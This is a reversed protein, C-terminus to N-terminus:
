YRYERQKLMRMFVFFILILILWYWYLSPPNEPLLQVLRENGSHDVAKVEVYSSRSQDELRYPSEVKQWTSFYKLFPVQYERVYYGFLGSDKDTTAFILVKDGNFVEPQSVVRPTFIEPAILDQTQSKPEILGVAEKIDIETGIIKIVTNTGLGDHKLASFDEGQIKTRGPALAIFDIRLVLSDGSVFGGPTIGSFDVVGVERELPRDVWFNIVSGGDSVRELRLTTPDYLIRGELANLIEGESNLKLNVELKEGVRLEGPVSHFYFESAFSLTPFLIILFLFIFKFM